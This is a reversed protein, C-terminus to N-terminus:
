NGVVGDNWRGLYIDKRDCNSNWALITDWGASNKEILSIYDYSNPARTDKESCKIILQSKLVAWSDLFYVFEIPKLKTKEVPTLKFLNVIQTKM